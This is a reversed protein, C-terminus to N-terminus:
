CAPRSAVNKKLKYNKIESLDVVSEFIKMTKYLKEYLRDKDYEGDFNELLCLETPTKFFVHIKDGEQVKKKGIADLIRQENPRQPNLVSKTITKKSCWQKIDEIEGIEAAYSDYLELSHKNEDLIDYIIETMFEKLAPEKMSGKLASGKIKVKDGQKLVYNKAKVVVFKEYHGDDEWVIMDKFQNNLIEIFTNFFFDKKATFSFSDTDANVIQYGKSEAFRIGRGLIARGLQTVRAANKPSNFNLNRAGMFGYASNIMIKQSQELDRYYQDGTENAKAKNELRELTFYDVMQLFLGKPDKTKDTIKYQRMISPYLSAVDVKYVDDYIGPNGFSIGGTFHEVETAKPISHGQQLYARIMFANIQSGSARNIIQQLNMPITQCLYFFSPIMLEYLNLADDADDECYECFNNWREGQEQYIEETNNHDFDWKIRGERELGEHEIIPKLGYSPYNRGIDYKMSLFFTDVVERGFIDLDKYDYSQSGDKRFQSNYRNVKVKSEDRGLPLDTGLCHKLYPLDFSFINHGVMISPDIRRVWKAWEYIMEKQNKYDSLKFLRKTVKTGRKYTNSILYVKSKKNLVIGNTEIDFSLRSVEEVKLGKYYTIGQRLQAMSRYDKPFYTECRQGRLTDRIEKYRKESDTKFFNKFYLNGKLNGHELNTDEANNGLGWYRFDDTRDLRSIGWEDETFIYLKDDKVEIGVVSKTKDKGFILNSSTM